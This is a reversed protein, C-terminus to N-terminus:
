WLPKRLDGPLFPTLKMLGANLQEWQIYVAPIKANTILIISNKDYLRPNVQACSAEYALMGTIAKHSVSEGNSFTSTAMGAFLM